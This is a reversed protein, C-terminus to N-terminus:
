VRGVALLISGRCSAWGLRLHRASEFAGINDGVTAAILSATIPGIGPITALRRATADQRAHRVIQEELTALREVVACGHAHLEALVQKGAEPISEDSSVLTMLMELKHMGKPVTLGFEAALGRLANALMTAQKVLLSRATHLALVAQQEVSKIPVFRTEPRSGAVCLAAADAADNKKGKKVFPRVAEPAILKVEHGLGSLLRGWHHGAGCAELFVACPPQQEFFAVLESRHLKRKLAARGSEDVGHVQFATKATDLGIITITM